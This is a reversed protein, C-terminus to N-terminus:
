LIKEWKGNVDVNEFEWQWDIQGLWMRMGDYGAKHYQRIPKQSKGVQVKYILRWTVTNRDRNRLHEIINLKRGNNRIVDVNFGFDQM